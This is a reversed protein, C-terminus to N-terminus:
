DLPFTGRQGGALLRDVGNRNRLGVPVDLHVFCALLAEVQKM